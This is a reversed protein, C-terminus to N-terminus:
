GDGSKTKSSLSQCLQNPNIVEKGGPMFGKSISKMIRYFSSRLEINKHCTKMCTLSSKEFLSDKINHCWGFGSTNSLFMRGTTELSPTKVLGKSPGDM